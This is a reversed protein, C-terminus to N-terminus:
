ADGDTDEVTPDRPLDHLVTARAEDFCLLGSIAACEPSRTRTRGPSTTSSSMVSWQPGTRRRARTRATRPRRAPWSCTWACRTAGCTSGRSWRPRSCGSRATTDVLVVGAVEVRLRRSTRICDVRHYPNRPHVRVGTRGGRELRGGRGVHGARTGAGAPEPVGVLRRRRRRPVRIGATAPATCSCRRTRQRDVTRGGRVGRVRRRYPEIYVLSGPFPPQLPRGPQPQAARTRHDPECRGEARRRGHAGGFTRVMADVTFSALLAGGEDHVRCESHTM